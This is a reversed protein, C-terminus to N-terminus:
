RKIERGMIALPSVKDKGLFKAVEHTWETRAKHHRLAFHTHPLCLAIM